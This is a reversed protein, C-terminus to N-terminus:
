DSANIDEWFNVGADMGLDSRPQWQGRRQQSVREESTGETVVEYLVARKDKAQRLIRGLRQIHERETATGSLVVAVSAEPVDVGENLVRSTVIVRYEGSRFKQLLAHREKVPTQHTIAPILFERSIRYVTANDDTFILTRDKPHNALIEELVRLKGDTGYALARAERHALMAKRGDPSGSQMVFQKWGDISGLRIGSKELFRNRTSILEAYREAERPSLRVLIRVEQYDALTGGRLDEPARAYVVPGILDNLDRERGDSRKPTATLGLRYPALSMDAIVRTFDSPLHHAEDFILLAYRGALDEAHIAASDYTAVLIPTEDKSGGGLLGINADPFAALLGSYWQHLLDLTPVCILTPRPTDRMALQAVLTKGAGTPLVVLGTRGARKWASLAEQQHPYPQVERAFPLTLKDYTAAEDRYAVLHNRLLESITRYARGPARHTQARADWTFLHAVVDPVERMVLTGRDLRLVPTM